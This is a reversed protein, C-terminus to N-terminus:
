FGLRDGRKVRVPENVLHSKNLESVCKRFHPVPLLEWLLLAAHLHTSYIRAKEECGRTGREHPEDSTTNQWKDELDKKQANEYM